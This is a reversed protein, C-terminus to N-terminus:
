GSKTGQNDRWWAVVDELGDRLRRESRWGVEDHLRRLDPLLLQPENAPTPRKGLRVLEPRGIIDGIANVLEAITVPRDDGVNVPGAVDSDLLAAFADGIDAAHLFGRTQQGPSCAAERGELLATIVSAVLRDPHEYPGYQFFIRGWATSLGEQRGYSDIMKQLAIKATAYPTGARGGDTALQTDFEHCVRAVSWDYEACSGAMVVREGGAGHFIELLALSAAVWRFNEPTTQYIGPTANWAFHLLHTPRVQEILGQVAGGDFLDVAHYAAGEIEVPLSALDGGRRTGVAHVEFGRALLPQM